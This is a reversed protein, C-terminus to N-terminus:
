LLGEKRYAAECASHQCMGKLSHPNCAYLGTKRLKYKQNGIHPKTEHGDIIGAKLFGASQILASIVESRSINDMAAINNLIELEFPSISISVAKKKDKDPKIPRGKPPAM